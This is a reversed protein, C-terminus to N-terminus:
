GEPLVSGLWGELFRKGSIHAKVETYKDNWDFDSLISPVQHFPRQLESLLASSTNSHFSMELREWEEGCAAYQRWLSRITM